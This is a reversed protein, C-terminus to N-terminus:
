PHGEGRLSGQVELPDGAPAGGAARGRVRRPRGRDGQSRSLPMPCSVAQSRTSTGPRSAPSTSTGVRELVFATGRRPRRLSYPGVGAPPRDSVDTMPVGPRCRRRGRQPWRTSSVPTLRRSGSGCGGRARRRGRRRRIDRGAVGARAYERAGVVAGLQAGAAANLRLARRLGREFDTAQVPPRGRVAPGQAPHADLDTGRRLGRAHGRGSGPVVETGGAGEARRYTLTPTYVLSLAQVAQPSSAVAPDLSDPATPISVVM